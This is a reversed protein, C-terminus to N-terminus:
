IKIDGSAVLKMMKRHVSTHLAADDFSEMSELNGNKFNNKEKFYLVLFVPIITVILFAFLKILSTKM